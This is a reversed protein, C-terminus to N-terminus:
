GQELQPVVPDYVASVPSPAGHILQGVEGPAVDDVKHVAAAQTVHVVHCKMGIVAPDGGDDDRSRGPEEAQEAAVAVQDDGPFPDQLDALVDDDDLDPLAPVRAAGAPPPVLIVVLRNRSTSRSPTPRIRQVESRKGGPVTAAKEVRL